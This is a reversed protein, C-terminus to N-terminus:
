SRVGCVLCSLIPGSRCPMVNRLNSVPVRGPRAQTLTTIGLPIRPRTKKRSTRPLISPHISICIIAFYCTLTKNTHICNHLERERESGFTGKKRKVSSKRECGEGDNYFLRITHIICAARPSSVIDSSCFPCLFLIAAARAPKSICMIDREGTAM